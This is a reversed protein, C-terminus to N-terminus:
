AKEGSTSPTVPTGRLRAIEARVADPMPAANRRNNELRTLEPDRGGYVQALGQGISMTQGKVTVTDHRPPSRKDAEVQTEARAEVKDALGVLISYLYGHGTMPLELRGADRSTLMQDIGQAWVSLPVIWDRGKHTIGQREMDPLLQLISKVQKPVTMRTKAPAFLSCYQLVRAGLPISVAALRGVARQTDAHAFLQAVTLEIGCFPCNIDHSV